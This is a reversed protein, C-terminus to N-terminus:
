RVWRVWSVACASRSALSGGPTAGAYSPSVTSTFHDRQVVAPHQLVPQVARVPQGAGPQVLERRPKGGDLRLDRLSPLVPLVPEVVQHVLAVRDGLDGRERVAQPLRVLV